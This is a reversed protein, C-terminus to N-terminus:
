SISELSFLEIHNQVISVIDDTINDFANQIHINGNVKKLNEYLLRSSTLSIDSFINIKNIGHKIANIFDNDSLGSGGHMVLPISINKRIDSLRELDLHPSGKYIGHVTGFAIALSDINTENVFKVADATKTYLNKDAISGEFKSEDGAIHGIEAEVTVDCAHAVEVVSKTIKINDNFSLSSGDIMVSTFGKSIAYICQQFTAAHDLQLAIPAKASECRRVLYHIFEDDNSKGLAFVPIMLIIPVNVREAAEIICEALFHNTADFGGIAFKGSLSNQYMKVTNVLM